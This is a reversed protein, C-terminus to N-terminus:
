ARSHSLALKPKRIAIAASTLQSILMAEAWESGAPVQMVGPRQTEFEDRACDEGQL